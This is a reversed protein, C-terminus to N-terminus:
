TDLSFVFLLRVSLLKHCFNNEEAQGREMQVELPNSGIWIVALGPLFQINPGKEGRLNLKHVYNPGPCRKCQSCIPVAHKQTAAGAQHCSLAGQM